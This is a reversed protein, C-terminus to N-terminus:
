CFTIFDLAIWFTKLEKEKESGMVSWLWNNSSFRHKKFKLGELRLQLGWLGDGAGVQVPFLFRLVIQGCAAAPGLIAM